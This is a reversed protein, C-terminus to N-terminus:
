SPDERKDKDDEDDEDDEGRTERTICLFFLLAPAIM